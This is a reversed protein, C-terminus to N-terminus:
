MSHRCGPPRWAPSQGDSIQGILREPSSRWVELFLFCLKRALFWLNLNRFAGRRGGCNLDLEKLTLMSCRLPLRFLNDITFASLKGCLYTSPPFFFFYVSGLPLYGSTGSWCQGQPGSSQQGSSVCPVLAASAESSVGRHKDGHGPGPVPHNKFRVM